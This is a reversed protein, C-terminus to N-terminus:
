AEDDDLPVSKWDVARDYSTTAYFEKMRAQQTVQDLTTRTVGTAIGSANNFQDELWGNVGRCGEVVQSSWSVYERVRDDSWGTPPSVVLAWLNSVKDAIKIIKARPSKSPATVIQLRKREAKALTKDDTVESVLSAVDEGFTKVLQPHTIGVDEIVDHLLAAIILNIDAGETAEAVLSAVEALHNLYPEQRGGKRRQDVHAQAAFSFAQTLRVVDQQSSKVTAVPDHLANSM